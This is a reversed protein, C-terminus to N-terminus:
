GIGVVARADADDMGAAGEAPARRLTAYARALLGVDSARARRMDLEVRANLSESLQDAM